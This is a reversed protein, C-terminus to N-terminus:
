IQKSVEGNLIRQQNPTLEFVTVRWFVPGHPGVQQASFILVVPMPRLATSVNALILAPPASDVPVPRSMVRQLNGSGAQDHIAAPRSVIAHRMRPQKGTAMATLGVEVPRAHWEPAPAAVSHSAVVANPFGDSFTVLQPAHAVGYSIATAALALTAFGSKALGTSYRRRDQRLIEALRLKLQKLHGVAAQALQVGRRLFSREALGILSEAYARPSFNAALVADDCAMERELTLRSEIWWVAPHFFFIAKVLKQALNTWDDYRHLHALEHLLIANLERPVVESLVWTPLVIIPRFYGLAAPVRVKESACLAVNRRLRAEALTARLLPDLQEIAVPACAARLRHLRYFGLAIHALGLACGLGWTFLIYRAFSEPLVFAGSPLDAHPHVTSAYFTQVWPAVFFLSLASFWIAFRTGPGQSSFVRSAIWALAAFLLGAPLSNIIGKAVVHLFDNM